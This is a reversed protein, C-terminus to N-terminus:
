NETKVSKLDDGEMGPVTFPIAWGDVMDQIWEFKSNGSFKIDKVVIPSDVGESVEGILEMLERTFLPNSIAKVDQSNKGSVLGIKASNTAIKLIPVGKFYVQFELQVKM